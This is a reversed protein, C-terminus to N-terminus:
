SVKRISWKAGKFKYFKKNYKVADQAAKKNKFGEEVIEKNFLVNYAM